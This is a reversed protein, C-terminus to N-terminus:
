VVGTYAFGLKNSPLPLGFITDGYLGRGAPDYAPYEWPTFVAGGNVTDLQATKVFSKGFPSEDAHLFYLDNDLPSVSTGSANIIRQELVILEIGHNQQFWDVVRHSTAVGTRRFTGGTSAPAGAIAVTDFVQDLAIMADLVTDNCVAILRRAGIGLQRFARKVALVAGNLDATPASLSLASSVLSADYNGNTTLIQGLNYAHISFAHVSAKAMWEQELDVGGAAGAEAEDYQSIIMSDHSYRYVDVDFSDFTFANRQAGANWTQPTASTTRLDLLNATGQKYARSHRTRVSMPPAIRLLKDRETDADFLEVTVALDQRAFAGISPNVISTM